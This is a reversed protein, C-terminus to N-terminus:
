RADLATFGKAALEAILVPSEPGTLTGEKSVQYDGIQYAQSPMGLYKVDIGIISQDPFFFAGSSELSVPFSQKCLHFGLRFLRQM